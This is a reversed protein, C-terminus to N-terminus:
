SPLIFLPAGSALVLQIAQNQLTHLMFNYTFYVSGTDYVFESQCFTSFAIKLLMPRPLIKELSTWFHFKM